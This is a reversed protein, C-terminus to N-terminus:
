VTYSLNLLLGNQLPINNIHGTFNTTNVTYDTSSGFIGQYVVALTARDSISMGIGAQTEFAIQSIDNVTVRDNIQMRRYAIGAKVVGFAPINFVPKNAMPDFTFTALLDLMPKVNMQVPLGGLLDYTELSAGLRMINGSQVGLESGLHLHFRGGTVEFPWVLLIWLLLLLLFMAIQKM